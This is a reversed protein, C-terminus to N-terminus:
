SKDQEVKCVELNAERVLDSIHRVKVHMAHDFTLRFLIADSERHILITGGDRILGIRWSYLEHYINDTCWDLAENFEEGTKFYFEIM